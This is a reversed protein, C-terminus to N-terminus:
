NGLKAARWPHMTTQWEGERESTQNFLVSRYKRGIDRLDPVYSNVLDEMVAVSEEYTPQPGGGQIVYSMISLLEHLERNLLKIQELQAQTFNSM